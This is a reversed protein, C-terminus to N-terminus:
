TKELEKIKEKLERMRLERDVFVRNLRELEKNKAIIEKTREAVIWELEDNMHIIKEEADKRIMAETFAGAIAELHQKQDETYGADRNAVAIMGSIKGQDRLPVGLFSTLPPHNPPLGSRGPYVAPDNVILSEEKRIVDGWIGRIVMNIIMKAAKTEPIQCSEWGPDSLSITSFLGEPNIEGIFGFKSGTIEQAEALCTRAIDTKNSSRMMEYLIRSIAELLRKQQLSKEELLRHETIDNFVAVVEGTPLKYVDNEAWFMLQDDQYLATPHYAAKGTKWVQQFVSFLGLAKVGPFVECVSKGIFDTYVHTSNQGAENLDVIIFDEGDDKARYVAVGSRMRDFLERFRTESEQLEKEARLQEVAQRTLVQKRLYILFASILLFLLTTIATMQIYHYQESLLIARSDRGVFVGWGRGAVPAFSLYRKRGSLSDDLAVSQNKFDVAQKLVFYFPYPTVQKNYAFRSSYVMQGNHDTVSISASSDLPVLQMIRELVITRQANMLLALVKGTEDFVPVGITIAADKERVIRQFVESVYPKWDQSIGKYWDRYAFNKGVVEPAPPYIAWLTGRTDVLFISEACPLEKKLSVLHQASGATNKGRAAAVLLPRNAYSEMTKLIKDLHEELLLAVLNATARDEKLAQERASKSHGSLLYFTAASLVVFAALIILTINRRKVFWPFSSHLKNDSSITM